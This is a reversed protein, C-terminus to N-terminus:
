ALTVDQVSSGLQARTLNIIAGDQDRIRVGVELWTGPKSLTSWSTAGQFLSGNWYHIIEKKERLGPDMYAIDIRSIKATANFYPDSGILSILVTSDVQSIYTIGDRQPPTPFSNFNSM